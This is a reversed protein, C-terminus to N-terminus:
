EYGRETNLFKMIREYMNEAIDRAENTCYFSREGFSGRLKVSFVTNTRMDFTPDIYKVHPYKSNYSQITISREPITRQSSPHSIQPLDHVVGKNLHTYYLKRERGKDKLCAYTYCVNKLQLYNNLLIHPTPTGIGLMSM